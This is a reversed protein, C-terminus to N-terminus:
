APRRRRRRALLATLLGAAILLLLLPSGEPVVGGAPPFSFQAFGQAYALDFTDFSGGVYLTGDSAVALAFAGFGPAGNPDFSNAKGDGANLGAVLNRTQGGIVSFFGAAYVTSGYVAVAFVGGGTTPDNAEPDFSTPTGDGANIGAINRRPIGHIMTFDGGAYVTSGSVALALVNSPAGADPNWSTASGDAANLAAISNRTKSGITSFHGGAYVLSGSVVLANVEGDSNADWTATATGDAASIAAINSRTKGGISNFVGGAYVTSGGVALAEVVAPGGFYSGSPDWATASGDAANLAAISARPKGGISGFYGGAYVTSGSVALAYV